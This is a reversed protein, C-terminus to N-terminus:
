SITQTEGQRIREGKKLQQRQPPVPPLARPQFFTINNFVITTFSKNRSILTVYYKLIFEVQIKKLTYYIM